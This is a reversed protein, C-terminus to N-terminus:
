KMLLPVIQNNKYDMLLTIKNKREIKVPERPKFKHIYYRGFTAIARNTMGKFM